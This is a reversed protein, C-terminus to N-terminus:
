KRPRRRPNKEYYLQVNENWQKNEPLRSRAHPRKGNNSLIESHNEYFKDTENILVDLFDSAELAEMGKPDRHTMISKVLTDIKAIKIRFESLIRHEFSIM